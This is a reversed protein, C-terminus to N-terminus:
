SRSPRGTTRSRWRPGGSHVLNRGKVTEAGTNFVITGDDGVDFWIPAVHARGDPRVTALLAPRAPLARLFADIQQRSLSEAM